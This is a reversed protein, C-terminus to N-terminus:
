LRALPTGMALTMNGAALTPTMTDRGSIQKLAKGFNTASTAPDMRDAYSGWAGNARQQFLGRSDPGANDGYDLVQLSSEGMATMVAIQQDRKSMGLDQIALMIIAAEDANIRDCKRRAEVTHERPASHTPAFLHM